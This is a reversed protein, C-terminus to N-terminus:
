PSILMASYCKPDLLGSAVRWLSFTHTEVALDQNFLLGAGALQQPNIFEGIQITNRPEQQPMLAKPHTRCKFKGVRLRECFNCVYQFSFILLLQLHSPRSGTGNPKLNFDSWSWPWSNGRTKFSSLSRDRRWCHSIRKLSSGAM